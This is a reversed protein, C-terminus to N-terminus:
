RSAIPHQGPRCSTKVGLRCARDALTRAADANRDMGGTGTSAFASLRACARGSSKVCGERYLDVARPVNRAVLVGAEFAAAIRTCGDGVGYMCAETFHVLAVKPEKKIASGKGADLLEGLMECGEGDHGSCARDLLDLDDELEGNSPNPHSAMGVKVAMGCARASDHDCGESYYERAKEADRGVGRGDYYLDALNECGSGSKGDCAKRFCLAAQMPDATIGAGGNEYLVGQSNCSAVRGEDCGKKYLALAQTADRGPVKGDAYLKGLRDCADGEGLDCARQYLQSGKAVDVATGIGNVLNMGQFYCGRSDDMECGRAYWDNAKEPAKDGLWGQEFIVGVSVCASANALETCSQTYLDAWRKDDKDVGKGLHYREALHNCGDAYKTDCAKQYLATVKKDVQDDDADDDERRDASDEITALSDCASGSGADCGKTLLAEAKKPDKDLGWWGYAYAKGEDAYADPNDTAEARELLGLAKNVDKDVGKGDGYFGALSDCSGGDGEDCEIQYYRAADAFRARAADDNKATGDGKAYRNALDDCAGGNGLDCAKALLSEGRGPDPAQVKHDLYLDGLNRCGAPENGDCGRKFLVEARALDRQVGQGQRYSWGVNNCALPYGADCGREELEAGKKIDRPMGLGRDEMFGLNNCARGSGSQCAADFLKAAQAFDRTVTTGRLYLMGVGACATQSGGECGKRYLAAAREFDRKGSTDYHYMYALTACSEANAAKCQADCDAWDGQRCEHSAASRASVCSGASRVFGEPCAAAGVDALKANPIAAGPDAVRGLELKLVAACNDDLKGDNTAHAAECEKLSGDTHRVMQAAQSQWSAHGAFIDAAALGSTSAGLEMAFAGMYAGRVFHTAGKCADPPGQVDVPRAVALTTSRKGVMVLAVDVSAGHALDGELKAALLAGGLPLNAKIEDSTKYQVVDEKISFENLKYSGEIRCQDLVKMEGNAYALVAIGNTMAIGLNGRQDSQWDIVLPADNTGKLVQPPPPPAPPTFACGSAALAIVAIALTARAPRAIPM